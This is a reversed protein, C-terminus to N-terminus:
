VKPDINSSPLIRDLDDRSQILKSPKGDRQRVFITGHHCWCYAYGLQKSRGRAERFLLRNEKTLRENCFIKLTPCDVEIDKNSINRRTKFAKIVEDRKTRRLMRVVITRPLRSATDPDTAPAAAPRKPGVRSIWDVDHEELSVGVKRAAVLLVHHLNENTHEPVGSIELENKLQNQAQLNLNSKLESVTAQLELVQIERSELKKLRSDATIM